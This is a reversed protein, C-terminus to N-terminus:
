KEEKWPQSTELIDKKYAAEFIWDLFADYYPFFQGQRKLERVEALTAFRVESVEEEQLVLDTLAPNMRVIYVDNFGTGFSVTLRPRMGALSVKLGIEELTEREAATVSTDGAVACGGASVDWCNPWARKKGSRKQILLKGEDNFVCVHVVLVYEGECLWEGRMKTRGTKRREADYIDVREVNKEKM